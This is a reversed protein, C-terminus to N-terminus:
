RQIFIEPDGWAAFDFRNDDGRGPLSSNTNFVLDVEQGAYASLDVTVPIWRRDSSNHLPDVHQKLLEDYTRGDSVGFRFLVGDTSQTWAEERLGLWTRLWANEPITVRRFTLRSTPVMYIAKRSEGGLSIDELKFAADSPEVNTRADGAARAAPYLAVLAVATQGTRGSRFYFFGAAVVVLLCVLAVIQSPKM